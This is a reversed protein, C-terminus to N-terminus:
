KPTKSNVEWKGEKNTIFRGNQSSYSELKGLVEGSPIAVVRLIDMVTCFAFTRSYNVPSIKISEEVETEQSTEFSTTKSYGLKANIESSFKGSESSKKIGIEVAFSETEIKKSGEKRTIKFSNEFGPNMQTTKMELKQSRILMRDLGIQARSVEYERNPHELMTTQIGQSVDLELDPKDSMKQLYYTYIFAGEAGKNLDVDIKKYPVQNHDRPIQQNNKKTAQFIIDTIPNGNGKKYALYIFKGGARKNLDVDIKNYDSGSSPEADEGELFKLGTIPIGNSRQYCLYIFLGGAGRNLDVPVKIYGPPPLISDSHGTIVKLNTIPLTM